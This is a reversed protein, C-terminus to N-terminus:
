RCNAFSTRTEPRYRRHVQNHPNDSIVICLGGCGPSNMRSTYRSGKPMLERWSADFRPTEGEVSDRNSFPFLPMLGSIAKRREFTRPRAGSLQSAICSIYSRHTARSVTLKSSIWGRSKSAAYCDAARRGNERRKPAGVGRSMPHGAARNSLWGDSCWNCGPLLPM